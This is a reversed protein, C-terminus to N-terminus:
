GRGTHRYLSSMFINAVQCSSLGVKRANHQLFGVPISSFITNLIESPTFKSAELLLLLRQHRCQLRDSGLRQAHVDALIGAKCYTRTPATSVEKLSETMPSNVIHSRLVLINTRKLIRGMGTSTSTTKSPSSKRRQSKVFSCDLTLFTHAHRRHFITRKERSSSKRHTKPAIPKDTVLFELNLIAKSYWRKASWVFRKLM